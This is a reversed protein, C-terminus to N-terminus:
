PAGAKRRRRWARIFHPHTADHSAVLVADVAPDTVVGEPDASARCGLAEAVTRARDLDVDAVLEVAAGSVFRQLTAAHDAGMIGTGIIGVRVTM